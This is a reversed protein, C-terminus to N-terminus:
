TDLQTQYECSFQAESMGIMPAVRACDSSCNGSLIHTGRNDGCSWAVEGCFSTGPSSFVAEWPVPAICCGRTEEGSEPIITNEEDPRMRWMFPGARASIANNPADCSSQSCIAGSDMGNMRVSNQQSTSACSLRRISACSQVSNSIRRMQWITEGERRSVPNPTGFEVLPSIRTMRVRV